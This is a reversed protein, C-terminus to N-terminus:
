KSDTKKIKNGKWKELKTRNRKICSLIDRPSIHRGVKKMGIYGNIGHSLVIILLIKLYEM